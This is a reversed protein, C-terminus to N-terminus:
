LAWVNLGSFVIIRLRRHSSLCDTMEWDFWGYITLLTVWIKISYLCIVVVGMIKYREMQLLYWIMGLLTKSASLADLDSLWM